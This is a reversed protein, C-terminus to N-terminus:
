EDLCDWDGFDADLYFHFEEDDEDYEGELEMLSVMPTDNAPVEGIANMIMLYELDADDLNKFDDYEDFSWEMLTTKYYDCFRVVNDNKVNQAKEDPNKM